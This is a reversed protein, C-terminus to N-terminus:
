ESVTKVTVRRNEPADPNSRNMLESQGKGIPKLRSKEIQQKESLYGVVSEARQQSLQLNMAEGGRPDAHGEVVFSFVSLKDSKMAKALTDLMQKSRLTLDASNTEFTILLAASANKKPGANKESQPSLGFSRTKLPPPAPTLADVLNSETVESAGLVREAQAFAIGSLFVLVLFLASRAIQM